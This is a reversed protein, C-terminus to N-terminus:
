IVAFSSTLAVSAEDVGRDENRQKLIDIIERNEDLLRSGTAFSQVKEAGGVAGKIRSLVIDDGSFCPVPNLAEDVGELPPYKGDVESLISSNAVIDALSHLFEASLGVERGSDYTVLHTYKLSKLSVHLQGMSESSTRVASALCAFSNNLISCYNFNLSSIKLSSLSGEDQVGTFDIACNHFVLSISAPNKAILAGIMSAFFGSEVITRDDGDEISGVEGVVLCLDDLNGELGQFEEAQFDNVDVIKVLGSTM